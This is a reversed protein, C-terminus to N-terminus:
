FDSNDACGTNDTLLRNDTQQSMGPKFDGFKNSRLARSILFIYVGQPVGVTRDAPPASFFQDSM